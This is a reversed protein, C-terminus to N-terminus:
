YKAEAVHLRRGVTTHSTETDTHIYTHADIHSEERFEAPLFLSVHM